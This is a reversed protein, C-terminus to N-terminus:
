MSKIQRDYIAQNVSTRKTRMWLMGFAVILAVGGGLGAFLLELGFDRGQQSDKSEDVHKLFALLNHVEDGTLKRGQYTHAMAPFPPNSIIAKVGQETLRSFADTLDKALSGGTIIKDYKVNHCSNCAAGGNTLSRLGAFIMEGDIEEDKTFESPVAAPAPAADGSAPGKSKIYEIIGSVQADTFKNDPMIIKNNEEFLAVAKPDGSKIVTQSSQVFKIIWANDHRNQVNALDPGVRKGQGITHCASCVRTFLQEGESQSLATTQILLGALFLGALFATLRFYLKM